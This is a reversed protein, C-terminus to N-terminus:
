LIYSTGVIEFGPVIAAALWLSIGNVVLLFLGLTM